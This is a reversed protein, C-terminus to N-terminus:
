KSFELKYKPLFCEYKKKDTGFDIFYAHEYVDMILLPCALWIAGNNHSDSGFIHLKNDLPDIGLAVWVRM